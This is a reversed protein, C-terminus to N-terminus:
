EWNAWDLKGWEWKALTKGTEGMRKKGKGVEGKEWEAWYREQGKAMEGLKM